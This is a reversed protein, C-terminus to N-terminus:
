ISKKSIFRIEEKRPKIKFIKEYIELANDYVIDETISPFYEVELL